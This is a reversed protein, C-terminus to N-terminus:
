STPPDGADHGPPKAVGEDSVTIIGDLSMSVEFFIITM